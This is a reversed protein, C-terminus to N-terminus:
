NAKSKSMNLQVLKDAGDGHATAHDHDETCGGYGAEDFATAAEEIEEDTAARVERVKVTYHLTQGALPHNADVIVSDGKVEIVRMPVEDGDPSEAVFEDGPEVKTPNPFESREVEMVLEDDHEGFGEEPSVIVKKEEGARLGMLATELGPVIMGYGHVYVIPEGDQGESADLLDGKDDHLSYDLVVRANAQITEM